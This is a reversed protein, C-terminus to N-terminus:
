ESWKRLQAELHKILAANSNGYALNLAEQCVVRAENTQGNFLHAVALTDLYGPERTISTAKRALRVAEDANHPAAPEAALIWALDNLAAAYAPRIQIAAYFHRIADPFKKEEALGAALFYHAEAHAPLFEVAKQLHEMGAKRERQLLLLNGLKM